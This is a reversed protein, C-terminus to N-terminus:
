LFFCFQCKVQCSYGLFSGWLTFNWTPDNSSCARLSAEYDYTTKGVSSYVNQNSLKSTNRALLTDTRDRGRFVVKASVIKKQMQHSTFHLFAVELRTLRYYCLIVQSSTKVKLTENKCISITSGQKLAYNLLLPLLVQVSNTVAFNPPYNAYYKSDTWRCWRLTLKM